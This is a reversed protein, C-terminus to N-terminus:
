SMTFIRDREDNYQEIILGELPLDNKAYNDLVYTLLSEMTYSDGGQFLGLAYYPPMASYGILAHYRKVIENATGRVFVYVELAGGLQIYNLM